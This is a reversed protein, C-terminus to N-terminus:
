SGKGCGKGLTIHQQLNHGSLLLFIFSLSLSLGAWIHMSALIMIICHLFPYDDGLKFHRVM